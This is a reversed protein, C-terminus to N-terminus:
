ITEEDSNSITIPKGYKTGIKFVADAEVLQDIFELAERGIDAQSPQRKPITLPLLASKDKAVVLAARHRVFFSREALTEHRVITWNFSGPVRCQDTKGNWHAGPSSGGQSTFYRVADVGEAATTNWTAGYEHSTLLLVQTGSKLKIIWQGERHTFRVNVDM